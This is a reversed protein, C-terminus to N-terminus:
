GGLGFPHVEQLECAGVLESRGGPRGHLFLGPSNTRDGRANRRLRLLRHITLRM